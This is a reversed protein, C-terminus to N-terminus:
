RPAPRRPTWTSTSCSGPPSARTRACSGSCSTSPGSTTTASASRRACRWSSCRRPARRSRSRAPPSRRAPASSTARGPRPRARRTLGLSELVRAALGEEERLLGLLIHETGIYNHRLARAEEQALVVVQRARETFREFVVLAHCPPRRPAPAVARAPLARGPGRGDARAPQRAHMRRRDGRGVLEPIASERVGVHSLRAPLGLSGALERVHAALAVGVEADCGDLGLVAAVDRYRAAIDEGGAANYEIAAPLNIAIAVGHPVDYQAGCAHALSHAVGLAGAVTPAIALSAAILMNGRATEDGPDHVARELSARILRLAHLACADGHASWERSTYGEIAHSLADIGTAAAVAPPLTATSQPDLIALRPILAFDGVQFKVRAARDRVVAAFSVESGTGATTPIAALPALPLAAGAGGDARPLGHYGEWDRPEGGHTFVVNAVKASDIVSGGGLALFADAGRERALAAIASVAGVDSDPPVDDFVAVAELGGDALGGAVREPLGTARVGADTVLLVRHAGEKAFEFGVSGILDRGAIVRAPATFQYFDKFGAMQRDGAAGTM